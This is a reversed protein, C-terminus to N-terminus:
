YQSLINKLCGGVGNEMHSQKKEEEFKKNWTENMEAEMEMVEEM